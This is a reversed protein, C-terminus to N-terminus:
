ASQMSDIKNFSYDLKKNPKRAWQSTKLPIVGKLEFMLKVYARDTQVQQVIGQIQEGASM